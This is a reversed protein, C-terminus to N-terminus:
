YKRKKQIRVGRKKNTSGFVQKHSVKKDEEVRKPVRFQTDDNNNKYSKMHRYKQLGAKGKERDEQGM